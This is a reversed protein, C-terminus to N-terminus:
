KARAAPTETAPPAAGLPWSPSDRVPALDPDTARADLHDDIAARQKRLLAALPADPTRSLKMRLQDHRASLLKFDEDLWAAAERLLKTRAGTELKPEGSSVLGALCAANYLHPRDLEPKVEEAALVERLKQLALLPKGERAIAYALMLKDAPTKPLVKDLAGDQALVRTPVSLTTKAALHIWHAADPWLEEGHQPLVDRLDFRLEAVQLEETERFPDRLLPATLVRASASQQDTEAVVHVCLAALAAHRELETADLPLAIVAHLTQWPLNALRPGLSLGPSMPELKGGLTIPSRTRM